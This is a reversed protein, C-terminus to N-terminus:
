IPYSYIIRCVFSRVRSQNATMIKYISKYNSTQLKFNNRYKLVINLLKTIYSLIILNTNVLIRM